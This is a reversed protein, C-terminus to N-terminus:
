FFVTATGFAGGNFSYAFPGPTGAALITLEGDCSDQCSIDKGNYDSTITADLILPAAETCISTADKFDAGSYKGKDIVTIDAASFSAFGGVKIASSLDLGEQAYVVSSEIELEVPGSNALINKAYITHGNSKFHGGTFFIDHSPDTKFSNELNWNGAAFEVNTFFDTNDTEISNFGLETSSFILKGGLSFHAKSSLSFDGQVTVNVLGGQFVPRFESSVDFDNVKVNSAIYITQFDDIFSSEDFHVNDSSSPTIGAAGGGSSTSWHSGDNWNGDGGIWYFDAAQGFSCVMLSLSLLLVNKLNLYRNTM